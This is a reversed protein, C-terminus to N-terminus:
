DLAAQHDAEPNRPNRATFASAQHAKIVTETSGLYSLRFSSGNTKGLSLACWMRDARVSETPLQQILQTTM